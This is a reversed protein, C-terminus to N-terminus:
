IFDLDKLCHDVCEALVTQLHASDVVRSESVNVGGGVGGFQHSGNQEFMHFCVIM